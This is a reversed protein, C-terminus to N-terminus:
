KLGRIVRPAAIFFCATFMQPEKELKDKLDEMSIWMIDSAEDENLKIEGGYNGIYVHDLEYEILADSFVTRYVFDFQEHLECDFGLEEQLRRHVAEELEENTRQHSCCSNTWLGGSHYKNVNRKQILMEFKNNIIFISFARHLLGKKHVEAKEAAGVIKDDINVLVIEEM